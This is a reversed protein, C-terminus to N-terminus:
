QIRNYDTNRWWLCAISNTLSFFHPFFCFFSILLGLFVVAWACTSLFVAFNCGFRRMLDFSICNRNRGFRRLHVLVKLGEITLSLMTWESRRLNSPFCNFFIYEKREIENDCGVILSTETSMWHFHRSSVRIHKHSHDWDYNIFANSQILSTDFHLFRICFFTIAHLKENESLRQWAYRCVLSGSRRNMWENWQIGCIFICNANYRMPRRDSEFQVFDNSRLINSHRNVQRKTKM